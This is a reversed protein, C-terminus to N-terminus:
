ILFCNNCKWKITWNWEKLSVLICEMCEVSSIEPMPNCLHNGYQHLILLSNGPFFYWTSAHGDSSFVRNINGQNKLWLITCDQCFTVRTVREGWDGIKDQQVIKAYYNSAIPMDGGHFKCPICGPLSLTTTPVFWTSGSQASSGPKTKLVVYMYFIM